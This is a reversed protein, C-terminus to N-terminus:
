NCGFGVDEDVHRGHKGREKIEQKAGWPIVHVTSAVQSLDCHSEELLEEKYKHGKGGGDSSPTPIGWGREKKTQKFIIHFQASNVASQM